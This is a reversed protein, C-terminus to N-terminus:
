KQAELYREYATEYIANMDKLGMAELRAVYADWEEDIGGSTIWKARMQDVYTDIDAQLFALENYEEATYKLEPFCAKVFPATQEDMAVKLGDGETPDLVIKEDFALSSYKPGFDRLSRDWYWADASTGEPPNLLSYTGDDNRSTVEGLGGWFNQISAEGTYFQDAWRLVVEPCKCVTTISLQNSKISYMGNLDGQQYKEGDPGALPAIVAYEDKWRRFIADYSWAYGFGVRAVEPDDCKADRIAQDQTFTEQDILGEQYLKNAWKLAEKYNDATYAFSITGDDNVLYRTGYVDTMGFPTLFDTGIGVGTFPIEDNPDGNGNADQEKFALLVAELEDITTPVELSLNELWKMNIVPVNCAMPRKPMRSPLSYIHGDASTSIAKLDPMEEFAATLNPMYLDILDELPIFYELNNIIDSEDFTQFGLVVDPLVSEGGALLIPKQDGWDNSSVVQWNVHVNSEQELNVLFPNTTFSDGMDSWRMTMVTFSVPEDVIPMGEAHFGPTEALALTCSLMLALALCLSVLKKM